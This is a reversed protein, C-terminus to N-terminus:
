RTARVLASSITVRRDIPVDHLLAERCGACCRGNSLTRVGARDARVGHLRVTRLCRKGSAAITDCRWGNREGDGGRIRRLAGGRTM